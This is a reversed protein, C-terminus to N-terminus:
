GRIWWSRKGLNCITVSRNEAEGELRIRYTAGSETVTKKHTKTPKSGPERSSLRGIALALDALDQKVRNIELEFDSDTAPGEREDQGEEPPREIGPDGTVRGVQKQLQKLQEQLAAMQQMFAQRSVPTETDAM